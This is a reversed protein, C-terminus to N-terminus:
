KDSLLKRLEPLVNNAAEYGAQIAERGKHFEFANIHSVDPSIMIDAKMKTIRLKVMEHEMIYISQILTNFINPTQLTEDKQSSDDPKNRQPATLVNVAIIFKAGMDRLVNTPVPDVLGGDVLFKDKVKVPVFIAPISISARVADIVSGERIVMEQGTNIDTTIAALPIKLENFAVDGILFYLLEEIRRGYIFGKKLSAFKIDLLRILQKLDTKLAIEEVLSIEGEKAFCAGILAGMSTGAIMDIPIEAKKLAKLVGIHALGLAAGSGLALGVNPRRHRFIKM